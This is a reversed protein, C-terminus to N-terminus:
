NLKSLNKLNGENENGTSKFIMILVMVIVIVTLLISTYQWLKTSHQSEPCSAPVSPPCSAEVSSPCPAQVSLPCPREEVICKTEYQKKLRLNKEEKAIACINPAFKIFNIKDNYFVCDDYPIDELNDTIIGSLIEMKEDDSYQASQTQFLKLFTMILGIRTLLGITNIVKVEPNPTENIKNMLNKVFTYMVKNQQINAGSKPLSAILFDVFINRENSFYIKPLLIYFQPKVVQVPPKFIADEQPKIADIAIKIAEEQPKIADIAIKIVEEQPKTIPTTEGFNEYVDYDLQLNGSVDSFKELQVTNTVKELLVILGYSSLMMTGIGHAMDLGSHIRKIDELNKKFYKIGFSNIYTELQKSDVEVSIYGYKNIYDKLIDLNLTSEDKVNNPTKRELGIINAQNDLKAFIGGM